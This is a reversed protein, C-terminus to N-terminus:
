KPGRRRLAGVPHVEVVLRYPSPEMSVSFNPSGKTELVVRTIGDKPQAVRVRVLLADEIEIDTDIDPAISTDHLDFYIREPNTLRHAEYQVHDQLDIM